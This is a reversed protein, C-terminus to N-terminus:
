YDRGAARASAPKGLAKEIARKAEGETSFPGLPETIGGIYVRYAIEPVIEIDHGAFTVMRTKM